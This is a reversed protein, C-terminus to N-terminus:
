NSIAPQKIDYYLIAKYLEFPQNVTSTGFKFRIMNGTCKHNLKIVYRRTTESTEKTGLSVKYTQKELKDDIYLNVNMDWNGSAKVWVVLVNLEKDADAGEFLYNRTEVYSTIAYGNDSTYFRSFCHIGGNPDAGYILGLISDRYYM